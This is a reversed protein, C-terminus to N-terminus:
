RIKVRTVADIFKEFAAPAPVAGTEAPERLGRVILFIALCIEWAFIPVVTFGAWEVPLDFLKGLNVLLVLPGGVLGLIPIFRPVLKSRYLLWALVVTNLACVFGPGVIFTLTYLEILPASFETGRVNMAAALAVVGTLIVAAELTRLAVYGLAFGESTRRILPYLALSTGVVAFALITDLVTGVLVANTGGAAPDALTPAYLLVAAVSTVHTILYFIGAARASTRPSYM